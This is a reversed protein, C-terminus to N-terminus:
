SNTEEMEGPSDNRLKVMSSNGSRMCFYESEKKKPKINRTKIKLGKVSVNRRRGLDLLEPHYKKKEEM